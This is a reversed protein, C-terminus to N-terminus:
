REDDANSGILLFLLVIGFAGTLVGKAFVGATGGIGFIIYGSAMGVLLMVVLMTLALVGEQQLM